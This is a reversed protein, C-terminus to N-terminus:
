GTRPLSTAANADTRFSKISDDFTKGFSEGADGPVSCTVVFKKNNKGEFFYFTQRITKGNTTSQTITKIGVLKQDTVFKSQRLVKFNKLGLQEYMKPLAQMQANVYDGLSAASLGDVVNINPAFGAIPQDFAFKYKRGPLERLAWNKPPIYSFGGEPETYRNSRAEQAVGSGVALLILLSLLIIKRSM